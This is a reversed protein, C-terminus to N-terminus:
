RLANLPRASQADTKNRADDAARWQHATNLTVHTGSDAIAQKDRNTSNM